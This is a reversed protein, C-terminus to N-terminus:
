AQKLLSTRSLPAPEAVDDKAQLKGAQIPGKGPQMRFATVAAAEGPEVMGLLGELDDCWGEVAGSHKNLILLRDTETIITTKKRTRRTIM